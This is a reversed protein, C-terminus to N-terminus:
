IPRFLNVEGQASVAAKGFLIETHWRTSMGGTRIHPRPRRLTSLRMTPNNAPALPLRAPLCAPPCEGSREKSAHRVRILRPPFGDRTGGVGSLASPLRGALRRAAEQDRVEEHMGMRCRWKESLRYQLGDKSLLAQDLSVYYTHMPLARLDETLGPKQTIYALLPITSVLHVNM